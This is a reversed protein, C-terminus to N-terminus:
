HIGTSTPAIAQFRYGQWSGRRALEASVRPALKLKPPVESGLRQLRIDPSLREFEGYTNSYSQFYAIYHRTNPYRRRLFGLDTDIQTRISDRRDLYGPTFGANNCFSCGGTGLLGDRNPCSFSAAVSVKQVQIGYRAKVHDNWANYRREVFPPSLLPM